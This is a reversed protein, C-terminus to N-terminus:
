LSQWAGRAQGIAENHFSTGAKKDLGEFIDAKPHTRGAQSSIWNQIRMSFVSNLENGSL